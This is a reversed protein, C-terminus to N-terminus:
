KIEELLVNVEKREEGRLYVIDVRDGALHNQIAYTLDNEKNIKINDVSIIIDNAMLGASDAASNKVVDIGDLNKYIIAGEKYKNNESVIVSLDVYNVGLSPRNINENRLLSKVASAFHSIPEIFNNESVLGVINGALNLIVAGKFDASLDDTLIFEDLFMDSFKLATFNNKISAISTLSSNGGWSVAVVSQGNVTEGKESFQSVPFNNVGKARVFSFSTISDQVFNDIEYIDGDKTIVVYNDLARQKDANKIFANTIIWGDSTIILGQGIKQNLKYYNNLNFESSELIDQEPQKKFIGVINSEASNITEIIKTDQEVIIKKAGRIVLNSGNYNGDSFNIEGFFPINYADGLMYVKAILGGVAGSVLGSFVSLIVVFIIINNRPLNIKKNNKM